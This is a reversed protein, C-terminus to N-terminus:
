QAQFRVLVPTASSACWLVDNADFAMLRCTTARSLYPYVVWSESQPDFRAVYNGGFNNVWLQGKSDFNLAYPNARSGNIEPMWWSQWTETQPDFRGISGWEHENFWIKGQGDIALRRTGPDDAARPHAWERVEGTRPNLRVVKNGLFEVMWINGDPGEQIGYTRSRYTPVSWETVRGLERDIRGAGDGYEYSFFVDGNRAVWVTHPYANPRPLIYETYLETAPDFRVMKNQPIATLTAWIMGDQAAQIGHPRSRPTPTDWMRFTETAPDFMGLNNQLLGSYWVRGDPAVTVSHARGEPTPNTNSQPLPFERMSYTSPDAIAFTTARPTYAQAGSVPPLALGPLALASALVVAALAGVSARRGTWLNPFGPM